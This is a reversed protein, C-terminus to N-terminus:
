FMQRWSSPLTDEICDMSESSPPRTLSELKSERRSQQLFCGSQGSIQALREELHFPLAVLLSQLGLPLQVLDLPSGFFFHLLAALLNGLQLAIKQLESINM